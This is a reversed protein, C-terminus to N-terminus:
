AEDGQTQLPEDRVAGRAGARGARGRRRLRGRPRLERVRERRLAAADRDPGLHKGSVVSVAGFEGLARATALVVGYAVGWRIAPLTIAGSRRGATRASRAARGAGARRRDGAAGADVERVVFPLSVFITALVMGPTSFIVQIGHTSCGSASGATARRLRAAARPRDVVPSIAFPLDILANLIAKGRFKQACWCSRPSSASSRTSRCRSRRRLRDDALLRAHGDPSTIAELRRGLGDEFTATSSSRRGPRGAAAALYGLAVFRLGYRQSLSADPRASVTM